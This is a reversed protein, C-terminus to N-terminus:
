DRHPACPKELLGPGGRSPVVVEIITEPYVDDITDFGDSYLLVAIIQGPAPVFGGGNALADSALAQAVPSVNALVEQGLVVWLAQQIDWPYASADAPMASDDSSYLTVDGTDTFKDIQVCWSAYPGDAVDYGAGVGSLTATFMGGAPSSGWNSYTVNVAYAPLNLSGAAFVVTSSLLALLLVLPLVIKKM